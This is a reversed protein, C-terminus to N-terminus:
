RPASNKAAREAALAEVASRPVVTTRPGANTAQLSGDNILQRVWQPTMDLMDAATAVDVLDPMPVWGERADRVEEPLATVGIVSALGRVLSLAIRVAQDVGEAPVTLTVESGGGSADGVAVHFDALTDMVTDIQADTAFRERTEIEVIYHM